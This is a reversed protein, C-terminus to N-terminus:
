FYADSVSFHQTIVPFSALRNTSWVMTHWENRALNLLITETYFLDSKSWKNNHLVQIGEAGAVKHLQCSKSDQLDSILSSPEYLIKKHIRCAWTLYKRLLITLKLCIHPQSGKKKGEKNSTYSMKCAQGGEIVSVSKKKRSARCVFCPRGQFFNNGSMLLVTASHETQFAM